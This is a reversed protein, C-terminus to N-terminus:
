NEWFLAYRAAFKALKQAGITKRFDSEIVAELARGTKPHGNVAQCV